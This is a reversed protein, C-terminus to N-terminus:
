THQNTDKSFYNTNEQYVVYSLGLLGVLNPIAMAGNTVDSFAWVIEVKQIAGVVV